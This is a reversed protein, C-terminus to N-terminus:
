RTSKRDIETKFSGARNEEPCTILPRHTAPTSPTGSVWIISGAFTLYCKGAQGPPRCDPITSFCLLLPLTGLFALKGTLPQESSGLEACGNAIGEIVSDQEGEEEALDKAKGVSASWFLSHEYWEQFAAYKIM